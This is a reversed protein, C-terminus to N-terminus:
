PAVHLISPALSGLPEFKSRDHFARGFSQGTENWPLYYM